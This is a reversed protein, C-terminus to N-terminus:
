GSHVEPNPLLDSHPVARDHKRNCQSRHNHSGNGKHGELEDFALSHLPLIRYIIPIIIELFDNKTQIDTMIFIHSKLPKRNVVRLISAISLDLPLICVITYRYKAHDFVHM